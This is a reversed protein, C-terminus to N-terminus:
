GDFAGPRHGAEETAVSIMAAARDTLRVREPWVMHVGVPRVRPTIPKTWLPRGEYSLDGAPRQVAIAYGMGRAVLSRMLEFDTVRRVVWPTLGAREFLVMTNRSSPPADLLLMPDDVLEDLAVEERDRLRHFESLLVYAPTEYLLVSSLGAPLDMGYVIALDLEGDLLRVPIEDQTGTVVELDVGPHETTYREMLPPVITPAVTVYCGILLPGSLVRGGSAVSLELEEADELLRVARRYLYEGSPTLSVGHSKRRVMLQTRLSRELQSMATSVATASVHLREAAASISGSEAVATFYRLQRM